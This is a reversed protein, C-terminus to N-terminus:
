APALESVRTSPDIYGYGLAEDVLQWTLPVFAYNGGHHLIGRSKLQRYNSMLEQFDQRTRMRETTMEKAHRWFPTDYLSGGQYYYSIVDSMENVAKTFAVNCDEAGAFGLVRDYFLRATYIYLFMSNAILPEFFLAKNGNKGVRGSVMHNSYYSRFKFETGELEPVGLIKKLDEQVQERTSLTDNYMYGFSKRSQLPVGFIWGHQAAIHDTFPEYTFTGPEINHVECHNVPSSDSITYGDFSKPFGMCDMLYDFHHEEGDNVVLTVRDELNRIEKVDAELIRFKEPWLKSLREYAFEKFRFNNFHIATNGDLLPNIWSNERWQMFKSGFKLTADLADLDKQHAISFNLGKELVGVFGGNTSEGIGLIPRAPNHVSVVEWDNDLWTCFHTLSLIGASGVGVVALRKKM